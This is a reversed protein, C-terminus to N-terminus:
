IEPSKLYNNSLNRSPNLWDDTRQYILQLLSRKAILFRANITMGKKIYGETGNKLEVHRKELSCKVRFMPINNIIFYDDSISVIKGKIIGWENYNFADIQMYVSMGPILFGINRAAVYIEAILDNEPSISAILQGAQLVTGPYIGSFSVVTGTVPSKIIFLEKEKEIQIIQTNYNEKESHRKVLDSRWQARQESELINKERILLDREFLLEEYEKKSILMDEYLAVNRELEKNAREVRSEIESLKQKYNKFQTKYLESFFYTGSTKQTLNELDHIYNCIKKHEERVFDLRSDIGEFDMKILTDGFSVKQGETIYVVRVSSSTIVRIEAIESVPRIIGRSQVSIPVKILPLSIIIALVSFIVVVYIIQSKILNDHIFKEEIDM